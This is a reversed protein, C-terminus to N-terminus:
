ALAADEDGFATRQEIGQEALWERLELVHMGMDKALKGLSIYGGQYATLAQNQKLPLEAFSTQYCASIAERVLQGKSKRRSAALRKLKADTESDLKVHLTSDQPMRDGM